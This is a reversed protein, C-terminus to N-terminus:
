SVKELRTGAGVRCGCYKVEDSSVMPLDETQEGQAEAEAQLGGEM